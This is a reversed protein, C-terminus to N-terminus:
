RASRRLRALRDVYRSAAGDECVIPHKRERRIREEESAHEIARRYGARDARCELQVLAAERMQRPKATNLIIKRLAHDSLRALREIPSPPPMDIIPTWPELVRIRISRKAPRTNM